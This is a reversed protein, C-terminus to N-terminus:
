LCIWISGKTSKEESSATVASIVWLRIGFAGHHEGVGALRSPQEKEHDDDLQRNHRVDVDEATMRVQQEYREDGDGQEAARDEAGHGTEGRSQKGVGADEAREAEGREQECERAVPGAAVALRGAAVPRVGGHQRDSDDGEQILSGRDHETEDQALRRRRTADEAPQCRRDDQIQDQRNGDVRQGPSQQMRAFPNGSLYAQKALRTRDRRKRGGSGRTSSGYRRVGFSATRIPIRPISATATNATSKRRRQDNCIKFPSCSRRAACFLWRRSTRKCAGRPGIMSRLPCTSTVLTAPVATCIQGESRGFARPGRNCSSRARACRSWTGTRCIPTVSRRCRLSGRVGTFTLSSM